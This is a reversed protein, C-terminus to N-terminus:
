TKSDKKIKRTKHNIEIQKKHQNKNNQLKKSHCVIEKSQKEKQQLYQNPLMRCRVLFWKKNQINKFYLIKLNMKFLRTLEKSTLYQHKMKIFNQYLFM